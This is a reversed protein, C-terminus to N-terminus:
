SVRQSQHDSEIQAAVWADLSSKRFRWFKGFRLCPITGARALAQVTKEHCRLLQAVEAANLLPEFYDAEAASASIDFTRVEDDCSASACISIGDSGGACAQITLSGDDAKKRGKGIDARSIFTLERLARVGSLRRRVEGETVKLEKAIEVKSKNQALKKIIAKTDEPIQGFATDPNNLDRLIRDVRNEPSNWGEIDRNAQERDVEFQFLEGPMLKKFEEEEDQDFPDLGNIPRAANFNLWYETKYDPFFRVSWHYGIWDEIKGDHDPYKDRVIQDKIYMSFELLIDDPEIDTEAKLLENCDNWRGNMPAFLLLATALNASEVEPNVKFM